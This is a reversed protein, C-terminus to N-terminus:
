DAVSQELVNAPKNYGHAVALINLEGYTDVTAKICAQVQEENAPDAAYVACDGGAAKIESAVAELKATNRATLMVRAGALAYAMAIAGGLAGTAGTVLAVKGEISFMSSVFERSVEIAM